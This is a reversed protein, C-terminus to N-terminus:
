APHPEGYGEALADDIYDPRAAPGEHDAGDANSAEEGPAPPPVVEPFGAAIPGFVVKVGYMVGFVAVWGAIVQVLFLPTDGRAMAIMNGLCTGMGAVFFPNWARERLAVDLFMVLFGFFLGYYVVGIVGAESWGHGIIGPALTAKAQMQEMIEIGLGMPKDPWIARPIPTGLVYVLGVLPKRPYVKPYNEIIFVTNQPTDQMFVIDAAKDTIEVNSVVSKLQGVREGVSARQGIEHRVATYALLLVFGGAAPVAMKGLSKMVPRYRLSCYWWMFPIALMVAIWNRRGAGGATTIISTVIFVGGAGAWAAPNFKRAVLYYTALGMAAAAFANRFQLALVQTYSFNGGTERVTGGVLLAASGLACFAGITIWLGPTSIPIEARPLIRTLAGARAGVFDGAYYALLFVPILIALILPGNEQASYLLGPNDTGKAAYLVSAMLYFFFMGLLFFNRLSLFDRRRTVLDKIPGVAVFLICVLSSLILVQGM